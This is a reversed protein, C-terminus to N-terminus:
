DSREGQKPISKFHEPPMQGLHRRKKVRGSLEITAELTSIWVSSQKTKPLKPPISYILKGSTALPPHYQFIRLPLTIETMSKM